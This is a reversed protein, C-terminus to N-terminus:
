DSTDRPVAAFTLCPTHLAELQAASTRRIKWTETTYWILGCLLLFQIINGVDNSSMCHCVVGVSARTYKEPAILCHRCCAIAKTVLLRSRPVAGGQAGGILGRRALPQATM